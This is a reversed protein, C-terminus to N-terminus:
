RSGGLLYLLRSWFTDQRLRYISLRKRRRPTRHSPSDKKLEQPMGAPSDQQPKAAQSADYAARREGTKISEWAETVRSAYLRRDFHQGAEGNGVADPHVWKMLLALHHRLDSPSSGSQAGLVRYFSSHRSLLVQEIFFAAAKRLVPAPRGTMSVADALAGAEGVAVELLFTVGKPLASRRALRVLRPNQLMALAAALADPSSMTM